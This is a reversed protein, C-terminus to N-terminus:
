YSQIELTGIKAKNVSWTDFDTTQVVGDLNGDTLFYTNLISPDIVWDDYDTNQIVGDHNYDGAYLVFKGDAMPKVQEIGFAKSDSTTFDYYIISNATLSTATLVDLHNRHRVSFYYQGGVTLNNFDLGASGNASRIDGNSMLLGVQREIVTTTASGTTSPTGVRAEVLVWDVADSPISSATVSVNYNWPAVNYPQALPVLGADNLLTHMTGTGNQYNGELLIKIRVNRVPNGCMNVVVSQASISNCGNQNISYSISIPMGWMASPVASPNFTNGTVGPGSFSGGSVVPILTVVPDTSCYNNTLTNFAASPGSVNNVSISTSSLSQCGNSNTHQVSYNGAASVTIAQTTSGNSWQNGNTYNSTLTVTEGPCLSTGGSISVSPTAPAPNVNVSVVNSSNSSCSNQNTSVSYNGSASVTISQSTAGTSWFNGTSASSTLTVSGGACFTTSGSSTITPTSPIPNVSVTVATSATSICGNSDTYSVSYTGSSSVVISSGSAGNSWSNGSGYNSSLIVSGGQCFTTPGNATITPASPATAVSVTVANSTGSACGAGNTTSVSYTGASFVTISQTTSGNSWTNGTAASSTLVVSGGSCITTPGSATVTPTAPNNSVSVTTVASTGSTCGNSSAVTVSYNGAQTVIISSANSGNSWTNGTSSSSTLTVSGGACLSTPGSATITPVTPSSVVQVGVSNSTNSSCGNAGNVIVSYAGASNVVITQSTAGNSWVNGTPSSSTLSVSQGSCLITSGSATITPTAPKPLVNVTISNSSASQCGNLGAVSVSYTGSQTVTISSTAAGNSWTNGSGSSSNLVVSGGACFTTPGNASITPTAPANLVTVNVPDSPESPCGNNGTVTVTYNGSSNVSIGQTTAGTSWTNGTLSSSNLNVSGGSCFTTSGMASITPKSPNTLVTVNITNSVSTCGNNATYTVSYSGSQTVTINPTSSGDSWTIGSGFDCSLVVSGGSCFTTPGNATITPAPPTSLVTVVINVSKESTCGNADTVNVYYTGSTSVTISQSTAGTSWLNGSTSNSTLTVSGGQCFSTPGSPTVIPTAPLANVNVSISNSSASVCGAASQNSVTYNGSATVTISQTTAGNSWINGTSASSQLIVSGGACFTTPGNAVISPTAPIPNVVIQTPSGNTDNNTFEACVGNAIENQIENITQPNLAALFAAVSSPNNNINYSLGWVSYTGAALGTTNFNGNAATALINFPSSNDTLIYTYDDQNGPNINSTGNYFVSFGPLNEGECINPPVGFGSPNILQGADYNQGTCGDPVLEVDQIITQGDLFTIPITQCQYGTACYVVSCTQCYPIGTSYFGTFDSTTEENSYCLVDVTAGNIPNGTNADTIDGELRAAKEYSPHYVFLGQESDSAIMRGSSFYPYAGWVGGFGNGSFPSSDYNGVDVMNTPDQIDFVHVGQTYYSVIAFCGDVFVNHPIINSGYPTRIRGIEQVNNAAIAAPSIDYATLWTGSVEDLTFLTNGDDSIWTAHTFNGPTTVPTILQTPNSKNSMDVIGFHGNNIHGVYAINNRVMGDHVYFDSYTGAVTPNDPTVNLDLILTSLNSGWLYAFGFEDIYINHARTLGNPYRKVVVPVPDYITTLDVIMLGDAAGSHNDHVVYAYNGWTKIDRWTSNATGPIFVVETPATPASIDVISLGTRTGVLAFEKGNADEWGWIDNLDEGYALDGQFNLQYPDVDIDLTLTSVCGDTGSVTLTYLGNQDIDAMSTNAGSVINGNTTSWSYSLGIGSSGSGDLIANMGDCNSIIDIVANCTGNPMALRTVSDCDNQGQATSVCVENEVEVADVLMIDDIYWGVGGVFSDSVMRFRIKVSQGNYSSLDVVTEQYGGNNGTFASQGSINSDPNVSITNNYGNQIMSTGLDTWAGGNASIEVVGGDWANETNYNHWFRLQPKAGSLAVANVQTLIQDSQAAPDSAFWSTAGSRPNATSGAWNYTNFADTSTWNGTGAEVDDFFLVNSVNNSNYVAQFTCTATQSAGLSQPATSFVGGSVSGGCSSSGNVYSVGAPLVDSFVLNTQTVSTYNTATLTYTLIDGPNVEALDVGKSVIVVDNCTPALDFAETGDCRDNSSGQDASFGLGRTAFAQWILCQNAGGYLQQDALLIADRGDVFGPSCPQLKMGETVLAMAINNGGTGNYLDPDWGYQGILAWTMDWLMTSWIFGVGHPVTINGDCLNGYTYNNIGFDTSYPAPRIGNGTTPQAQVYTGVGRRDPGVDGPEITMVMGIWDSWGEGMQEQVGLCGGQSPGGTLRISIGHGYEHAIIGNDLDSDRINASAVLTANVTGAAKLLNCDAQSIMVAPITIPISATGNMTIPAGAVNNCVVCATAGANQANEVKTAFTCNGRDVMAINGNVAAANILANCGETPSGTGDNVLVMNGTIGGAPIGAAFTSGTTTYAGAVSAPSNVQLGNGGSVNWEFMSMRPLTGDQAVSFTANGSVGNDAGDQADSRVDDNQAGGNGFNNAQFNGSPEDFGYQYWVDHMINSWYFLNTVSLDQYNVPNQSPDFPFNFDLTGSSPAFGGTDNGDRDEVARCNNGRTTTYSNSGTNHWGLPSANTALNWPASESTQAGHSPSEVPPAFVFYSNAAPIPPAPAAAAKPLAMSRLPGMNHAKEGCSHAESADFKCYVTWSHRYLEEGTTADVYVTFRESVTLPDISLDWALKVQDNREDYFYVQKAEVDSPDVNPAALKKAKKASVSANETNIKAALNEVFNIHSSIVHMDRSFHVDSQTNVVERDAFEQKFYVHWIGSQRSQYADTIKLPDADSNPLKQSQIARKVYSRTVEVATQATLQACILLLLIPLVPKFQM